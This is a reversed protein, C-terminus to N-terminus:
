QRVADKAYALYDKGAADVNGLGLSGDWLMMGGFNVVNLNKAQAVTAVLGAGSVFGSGAVPAAGAGVYLRPKSITSSNSSLLSSWAQFSPAFGISNDLNCAPNNYFQVWVFDMELMGALPISEDPIPCQPAASIYYTNSPDKAYQQRLAQVFPTWHATTHNENDIDFGDFIVDKGFPRLDPDDTGAGFLSWLTEAFKIAQTDSEFTSNAKYGGLSILVKKGAQQCDTIQSAIPTCDWLGPAAAAQETNSAWCAPSLPATPYGQRSFFDNVFALIIIDVNADGCLKALGAKTTINSAGYYVVVNDRADANFGGASASPQASYPISTSSTLALSPALASASASNSGIGYGSPMMTTTQTVTIQVTATVTETSGFVPCPVRTTEGPVSCLTVISTSTSIPVLTSLSSAMPDSQAQQTSSRSYTPSRPCAPAPAFTTYSTRGKWFSSVLDEFSHIAKSNGAFYNSLQESSDKVSELEQLISAPTLVSLPTNITSQSSTTSPAQRPHKHLHARHTHRAQAFTVLFLLASVCLTTHFVPSYRMRATTRPRTHQFLDTSVTRHWTSSYARLRTHCQHFSYTSLSDSSHVSLGSGPLLTSKTRSPLQPHMALDYKYTGCEVRHAHARVGFLAHSTNRNITLMEGHVAVKLSYISRPVLALSPDKSTSIHTQVLM